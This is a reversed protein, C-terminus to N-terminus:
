PCPAICLLGRISLLDTQPLASPAECLRGGPHISGSLGLNGAVSM